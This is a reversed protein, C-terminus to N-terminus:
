EQQALVGDSCSSKPVSSSGKNKALINLMLKSSPNIIAGVLQDAKQHCVRSILGQKRIDCSEFSEPDVDRADITAVKIGVVIVATINM